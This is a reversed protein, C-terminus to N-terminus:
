PNLTADLLALRQISGDSRRRVYLDTHKLLRVLHDETVPDTPDDLGLEAAGLATMSLIVTGSQTGSPPHAIALMQRAPVDTRQSLYWEFADGGDEAEDNISLTVPFATIPTPIEAIAPFSNIRLDDVPWERMGDAADPNGAGFIFRFDVYRLIIV